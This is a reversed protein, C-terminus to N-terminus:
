RLFDGCSLASLALFGTALGLPGGDPQEAELPIPNESLAIPNSDAFDIDDRLAALRHGKDLDFRSCRLRRREFRHGDSLLLPNGACRQQEELFVRHMAVAIQAEIDYRHRLSFPRTMM